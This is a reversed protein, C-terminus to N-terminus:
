ALEALEPLEPLKRRRGPMWLKGSGSALELIPVM